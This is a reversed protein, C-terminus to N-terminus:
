ENGNKWARNVRLYEEPIQWVYPSENLFHRGNKLARTLILREKARTMAVYFIKKEEEECGGQKAAFSPFNSDDAGAIIVTSFECGKAQHVTIIPIKNSKQILLDMQSGSLAADKVYERIFAKRDTMLADLDEILDRLTNQDGKTAYRKDLMLRESSYEVLPEGRDWRKTLEQYFAYFKEFKPAHKTLIAQRETTTPLVREEIMNCLCKATAIIDGLANHARENVVGFQACLTELKYNKLHPYFQKAMPLTDYEAVKDIPPVGQQAFLRELLPKDYGFNNHGVLVCGNAFARFAEIGEKLSVGGNARIYDLTFGHTDMAGQEIPVNPEILIDLRDIIEGKKGLKIAAIQVPEDKQLDLGTTETDYVVIGGGAYGELLAHYSDGFEYTQGDLFSCISVGVGNQARLYEMTKAGVLRVYKGALREMSVRDFPSLLLKFLALVDKVLPKKFFQFNEEVTFFRLREGEEKEESIEELYKALNAIYKNSRALICIDREGQKQARLLYSYIQRAEEEYDYFAYCFIKDGTNQSQIELDAPCYKGLLQPYINKLYAFGAEALIKTARYNVSLMYIRPSFGRVYEDLIEQPASGRWGYITQFLDGCLMVNNKGFIETLLSYELRSTDQMEDLIIYAYKQSWYARSEEAILLRKAQMILDDFDLLNSVLLHRDYEAVLRGAFEDMATSFQGDPTYGLYRAYYSVLGEYTEQKNEKLYLYANANDAIEDGTYFGGAERCHKIESVLNRLASRKHYVDFSKEALHFTIEKGCRPCVSGNIKEQCHPCTIKMPSLAEADLVEGYANFIKNEVRWVVEEGHMHLPCSQLDPMPIGQAALNKELRWYFYRTSLISKLIEEQDVEDCVGLEGYNGGLRRNEESLLRYCFGHITSVTVERGREGVIQLIDEKMENCAKITFTLCLVEEARAKNQALLNAVRQAVTFTKGTGASAFLLINEETQNIVEFQRQNPTKMVNKNYCIEGYFALVFSFSAVRNQM